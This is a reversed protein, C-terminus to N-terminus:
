AEYISVQLFEDSALRIIVQINTNGNCTVQPLIEITSASLLNSAFARCSM